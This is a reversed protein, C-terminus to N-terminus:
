YRHCLFPRCKWLSRFCNWSFWEMFIVAIGDFDYDYKSTPKNHNHPKAHNKNKQSNTKGEEQKIKTENKKVDKKMKANEAQHDLIAYKLEQKKLKDFKPISLDEGIKKLEAVKKNNLEELTYM